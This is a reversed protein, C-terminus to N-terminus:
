YGTKAKNCNTGTTAYSWTITPPTVTGTLTVTCGSLTSNGVAKFVALGGIGSTGATFTGRSIAAAGSSGSLPMTMNIATDTNCQTPDGANNQICLGTATKTSGLSVLADQWKTRVIYDQYQPIAVAALIGIIAVVIMLEILTFGSQPERTLTKM